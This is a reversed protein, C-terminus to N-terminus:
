FREERAHELIDSLPTGPLEEADALFDPWEIKQRPGMAILRAVPRGRRTIVVAEGADISNLIKAFNKQVEGVSATRMTQGGNHVITVYLKHTFKQPTLLAWGDEDSRSMPLRDSFKFFSGVVAQGSEIL